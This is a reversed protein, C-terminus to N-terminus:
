GAMLTEGFEAEEKANASLEKEAVDYVAPPQYIFGKAKIIELYENKMAVFEKIARRMKSIYAENRATRVLVRPFSPHYSLFDGWSRETIFLQGQRQPNYKPDPGEIMYGIHVQATPCKVELVGDDGVLRDPSCGFEGADDTIFGIEKTEIDLEFEYAQVAKPEMEKGRDIHELGELDQAPQRMLIEYILRYAYKSAQKSLEGTPTLIKGFESATPLGLRAKVWLASGQPCDEASYIIM